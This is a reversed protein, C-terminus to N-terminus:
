GRASTFRITPSARGAALDLAIARAADSSSLIEPLRPKLDLAMLDWSNVTVGELRQGETGTELLRDLRRGLEAPM